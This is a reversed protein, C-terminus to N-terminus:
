WRTKRALSQGPPSGTAGTVESQDALEIKVQSSVGAELRFGLSKGTVALFTGTAVPASAVYCNGIRINESCVTPRALAAHPQGDHTM